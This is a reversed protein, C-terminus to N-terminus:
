MLEKHHTEVRSDDDFIYCGVFNYNDVSYHIPFVLLLRSYHLCIIKIEVDTVDGDRSAGDPLVCEVRQVGQSLDITHRFSGFVFKSRKYRVLESGRHNKKRPQGSLLM